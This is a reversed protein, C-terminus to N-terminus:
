VLIKKKLDNLRVFRILLISVGLIFFFFFGTHTSNVIPNFVLTTLGTILSTAITIILIRLPDNLENYKQYLIRNLTFFLGIIGALFLFVGILGGQVAIELLDNHLPLERGGEYKTSYGTSGAFYKGYVPSKLFNVIGVVILYQRFSANSNRGLSTKFIKDIESIFGLIQSLFVLLITLSFFAIILITKIGLVRVTLLIVPFLFTMLYVLFMTTRPNILFLIAALLFTTVIFKFNKSYLAPILFLPMIFALEHIAASTEPYLILILIRSVVFIWGLINLFKLLYKIDLDLIQRSPILLVSLSFMLQFVFRFNSTEEGAMKNIILGPIAFLVLIILFYTAIPPKTIAFGSYFYGGLIFIIALIPINKIVPWSFVLLMDAAILTAIFGSILLWFPWVAVKRIFDDLM